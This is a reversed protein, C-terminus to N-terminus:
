FFSVRHRHAPVWHVGHDGRIAGDIAYGYLIVGPSGVVSQADTERALPSQVFCEVDRSERWTPRQRKSVAPAVWFQGAGQRNRKHGRRGQPGDWGDGQLGQEGERGGVCSRSM